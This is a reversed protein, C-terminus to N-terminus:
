RDYRSKFELFMGLTLFTIKGSRTLDIKVPLNPFNYTVGYGVNWKKTQGGPKQSILSEEELINADNIIWYDMGANASFAGITHSYKLGVIQPVSASTSLHNLQNYYLTSNGSKYGAQLNFVYTKNSHGLGIGTFPQSLPKHAIFLAGFTILYRM